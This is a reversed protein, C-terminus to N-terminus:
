IRQSNRFYSNGNHATIWSGRRWNTIDNVSLINMGYQFSTAIDREELYLLLSPSNICFGFLASHELIQCVYKCEINVVLM